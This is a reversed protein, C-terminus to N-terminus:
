PTSRVARVSSVNIETDDGVFGLDFWVVWAGGFDAYSTSAWYTSALAKFVPDVSPNFRGYDVISQLERVNPLRWDDHGAFDLNACYTLADCWPVRDAATLKGDKNVDATDQQWMLGTCKDSVTGDGNDVLRSEATCGTAFAGDQGPCTASGCAVENGAEDYCLTAGTDPLGASEGNSPPCNPEQGFRFLWLLLFVPDAIDISGDGNVDQCPPLPNGVAEAREPKGEFM